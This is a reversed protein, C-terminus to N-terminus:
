NTSSTSLFETVVSHNKKQNKLLINLNLNILKILIVTKGRYAKQIVGQCSDAKHLIEYDYGKM